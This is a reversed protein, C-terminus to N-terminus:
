SYRQYLQSILLRKSSICGSKAAIASLSDPQRIIETVSPFGERFRFDFSASQTLVPQTATCMVPTVGYHQQLERIAFVVPRLFEPPLCQAEDFIV